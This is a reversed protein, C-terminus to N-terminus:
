EPPRLMFSLSGKKKAEALKQGQAETVAVTVVAPDKETKPDVPMDVVLVMINELLVRARPEGKATKETLILDVRRGPVVFGGALKTWDVRIAYAHQGKELKPGKAIEDESILDAPTVFDDERLRRTLYKGKLDAFRTIAAKPEEGKIFKKVKFLKEPERILGLELSRRATLIEVIEVPKGAPQASVPGSFVAAVSLVM